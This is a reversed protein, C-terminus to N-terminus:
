GNYRSIQVFAIWAFLMAVPIVNVVAAIRWKRSSPRIIALAVSITFAALAPFFLSLWLTNGDVFSLAFAFVLLVTPLSILTPFLYGAQM